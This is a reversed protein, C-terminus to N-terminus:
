LTTCRGSSFSAQSDELPIIPSLYRFFQGNAEVSFKDTVFPPTVGDCQIGQYYPTGQPGKYVEICPHFEPQSGLESAQYCRVLQHYETYSDPLKSSESANHAMSSKRIAYDKARMLDEPSCYRNYGERETPLVTERSVKKFRYESLKYNADGNKGWGKSVEEKCTIVTGIPVEYNTQVASSTQASASFIGGCFVLLAIFILRCLM